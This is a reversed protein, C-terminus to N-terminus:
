GPSEHTQKVLLIVGGKENGSAGGSSEDIWLKRSYRWTEGVIETRLDPNQVDSIWSILKLRYRAM